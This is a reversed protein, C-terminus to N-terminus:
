LTKLALVSNRQSHRWRRRLRKISHTLCLCSSSFDGNEFEKTHGVQSDINTDCVFAVFSDLSEPLAWRINLYLINDKNISNSNVNKL